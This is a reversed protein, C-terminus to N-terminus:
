HLAVLQRKPTYYSLNKISMKIQVGFFSAFKLIHLFLSANKVHVSFCSHFRTLQFQERSKKDIHPSRLVTYKQHTTPLFELTASGFLQKLECLNQLTLIAKKLLTKEFSKINLRLIVFM